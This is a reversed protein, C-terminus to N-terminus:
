QSAKHTRTCQTQVRSEGPLALAIVVACAAALGGATMYAATMGSLDIIAGSIVPGFLIGLGYLAQYFGMVTSKRTEDVGLIVLGVLLSDLLFTCFGSIALTVYLIGLSTVFPVVFGSFVGVIVLSGALVARTGLAKMLKYSVASGIIGFFCYLTNLYGLAADSAGLKQAILPTFTFATAYKVYFFVIGTLTLLILRRTLIAKLPVQVDAPSERVCPAAEKLFPSLALFCVAGVGAMLFPALYGYTDALLGGALMSVLQSASYVTMLVTMARGSDEPPYERAYLVTYPVWTSAHAGCLARCILLSLPSPVLLVVLAAALGCIVGGVIFVKRRDLKDSLMGLPLRLLIMTLGYAGGILGIMTPTANLSKAYASVIPVYPYVAAWYFFTLAFLLLSKKSLLANKTNNM